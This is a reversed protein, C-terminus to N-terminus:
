LFQNFFGVLQEALEDDNTISPEGQSFGTGVPQEVYLMHSINNWSYPNYTPHAAGWAWSIPGNEQLFGEM